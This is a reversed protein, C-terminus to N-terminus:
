VLCHLQKVSEEVILCHECEQILIVKSDACFSLPHVGVLVKFATFSGVM